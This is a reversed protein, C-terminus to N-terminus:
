WMDKELSLETFMWKLIVKEYTGADKPHDRRNLNEL